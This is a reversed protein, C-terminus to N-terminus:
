QAKPGVISCKTRAPFTECPRVVLPYRQAFDQALRVLADYVSQDGHPSGFRDKGFLPFCSTKTTRGRPVKV